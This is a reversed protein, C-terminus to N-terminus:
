LGNEKTYKTIRELEEIAKATGSGTKYAFNTGM